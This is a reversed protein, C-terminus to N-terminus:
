TYKEEPLTFWFVSGGGPATEVGIEGGHREVIRKCIALGIGTGPYESRTHLRQFIGFIRERYQPEIGIGNDSVSFRWHRDERRAEIQVRPAQGKCYKLANGILNQFLQALQTRDASVRPLAPVSLEAGTETIRVALRARAEELAAGSDVAELPRGGTNVRSYALIDEILQHMRQAGDVAYGMFERTEANLQGALRKELLQVYGTVMRLPEQLDHSAVYSFQTLEANSRALEAAYKKVDVDKESLSDAMRNFHAAVTDLEAVGGPPIRHTLNGEAFMRIGYVLSGICRIVTRSLLLQISALVVALVVVAGLVLADVRQQVAMVERQHQAALQRATSYMAQAKTRMQGALRERWPGAPTAHLEAFLRGKEAHDRRLSALLGLEDNQSREADALLRGLSDHRARWQAVVRDTAHQAYERTLINVEFLGHAIADAAEAQARARDVQHTAYVLLLGIAAAFAVPLVASIRTQTRLKM